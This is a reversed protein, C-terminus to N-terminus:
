YNITMFHVINLMSVLMGLTGAIASYYPVERLLRGLIFQIIIMSFLPLLIFHIPYLVLKATVALYIIAFSFVASLVIAVVGYALVFRKIMSLLQVNHKSCLTSYAVMVHFVALSVSFMVYTIFALKGAITPLQALLIGPTTWFMIAVFGIFGSNVLHRDPTNFAREEKTQAKNQYDKGSVLLIDAFMNVLSSVLVIVGIITYM